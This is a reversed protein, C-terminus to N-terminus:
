PGTAAHKLRKAAEAPTIRLVDAILKKPVDGLTAIPEDAITAAIANNVALTLRQDTELTDMTALRDRVAMATWDTRAVIDIGAAIMALGDSLEEADM